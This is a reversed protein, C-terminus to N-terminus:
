LENFIKILDAADQRCFICHLPKAVKDVCSVQHGCPIFAHTAEANWCIQCDNQLRGARRQTIARPATPKIHRSRKVWRRRPAECRHLRQASKRRWEWRLLRFESQKKATTRKKQGEASGSSRKEHEGLCDTTVCNAAEETVLLREREKKSARQAKRKQQEEHAQDAFEGAEQEAECKRNARYSTTSNSWYRSTHAAERQADAASPAAERQVNTAQTQDGFLKAVAARDQADKLQRTIGPAFAECALEIFFKAAM